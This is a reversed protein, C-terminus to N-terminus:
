LRRLQRYLDKLAQKRSPGQASFCGQALKLACAYAEDETQICRRSRKEMSFSGQNKEALGDFFQLYEMVDM